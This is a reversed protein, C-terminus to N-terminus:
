PTGPYMPAQAGVWQRDLFAWWLRKWAPWDHDGEVPHRASAPFRDCLARMGNVFRDSTGYGAFVPLDVPPSKLWHWVRYEADSLQEPTAQWADLGGARAIANTVLRSGPYPALLCLGHVLGPHAQATVLTMFGGLSIGGLWIQRYQRQAPQLLGPVLPQLAKGDAAHAMDLEVVCVDLSLQREDVDSFFGADAFDQPQMLVGPLLVILDQGQRRSWLCRLGPTEIMGM